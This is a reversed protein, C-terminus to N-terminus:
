IMFIVMFYQPLDYSCQASPISGVPIAPGTAAVDALAHDNYAM